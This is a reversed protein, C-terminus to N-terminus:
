KCGCDNNVVNNKMSESNCGIQILGWLFKTPICTVGVRQDVAVDRNHHLNTRYDTNYETTAKTLQHILGYGVIALVAFYILKGQVGGSFINFGGFFKSINFSGKLMNVVLSIVGVLVGIITLLSKFSIAKKAISNGVENTIPTKFIGCLALILFIGFLIIVIIGIIQFIKEYKKELKKIFEKIKNIM